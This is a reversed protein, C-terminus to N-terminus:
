KPEKKPHKVKRKYVKKSPIPTTANSRRLLQFAQMMAKNASAM